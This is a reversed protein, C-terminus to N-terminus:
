RQITVHWTDEVGRYILGYGNTTRKWVRLRFQYACSPMVNAPMVSYSMSSCDATPSPLGSGYTSGDYETTYSMNGQWTPSGSANDNYNDRAKNPSTPRPMVRCDHGYVADLTYNGLHGRQDWVRFDMSIQDGSGFGLIECVGRSFGALWLDLIRVIPPTNDMRIIIKSDPLNNDLNTAPTASHTEDFDWVYGEVKFECLGDPVLKTNFLAIRDIYSWIESTNPDSDPDIRYPIKYLNTPSGSPGPSFPGLKEPLWKYNITDNWKSSLYRDVESWGSWTIGNDTSYRYLVKYCTADSATGFWGFLTISRGFPQDTDTGYLHSDSTYDGTYGDAQARFYGLSAADSLGKSLHAIECNGIRTFLFDSGGIPVISPNLCVALPSTIEFSLSAGGVVNWHTEAPNEEYISEISGNINQTFLFILDPGGIEFGVGGSPWTFTVSFNGNNDVVDSALPTPDVVYVGGPVPDVEFVKVEAGYPVWGTIACEAHGNVTYALATSPSASLIIFIALWFLWNTKLIKM